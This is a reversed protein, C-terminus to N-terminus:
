RLGSDLAVRRWVEDMFHEDYLDQMLIGAALAADWQAKVDAYHRDYLPGVTNDWDALSGTV